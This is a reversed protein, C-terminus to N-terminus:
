GQGAESKTSRSAAVLRDPTAGRHSLAWVTAEHALAPHVKWRLLQSEIAGSDEGLDALSLALRRARLRLDGVGPGTRQASTWSRHREQLAVPLRLLHRRALPPIRRRVALSDTGLPRALGFTVLRSLARRVPANAGLRTGLGLEGALLEVDVDFGEPESEFRSALRRALLVTSPGLVGLWFLEVYASRPDHGLGDIVPDAWPEVHLTAPRCRDPEAKVTHHHDSM